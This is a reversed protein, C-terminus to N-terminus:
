SVHRVVTVLGSMPMIDYIELSLRRTVQCTYKCWRGGGSRPGSTSKAPGCGDCTARRTGAFPKRYIQRNQLSCLQCQNRRSITTSSMWGTGMKTNSYCRMNLQDLFFVTNIMNSWLLFIIITTKINTKMYTNLVAESSWFILFWYCFKLTSSMKEGSKVQFM